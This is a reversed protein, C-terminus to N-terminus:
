AHAPVGIRDVPVVGILITAGRDLARLVPSRGVIIAQRVIMAKPAGVLGAGVERRM